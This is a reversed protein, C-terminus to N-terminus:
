DINLQKYVNDGGINVYLAMLLSGEVLSRRSKVIADSEPLQGPCPSKGTVEKHLRRIIHIPLGTDLAIITTRFGYKILLSARTFLESKSLND